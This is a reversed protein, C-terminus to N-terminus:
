RVFLPEATQVELPWVIEKRGNQWQIILPFRKVQLGTRDVAYRGIVSDPYDLDRLANRIRDRQLTGVRVVAVELIQGAAYAAAAQYSPNVGYRKRFADAFKRSGPLAADPEWTSTAFSYEAEQGLVEYYKDLAPGVTAFYAEPHWGIEKLARRMAVSEEFHGAVLLLKAGAEKAKRAMGTLDETGKSFGEFLVINLELVPAYKHAGNAVGTSFEDDAHVFAVKDLGNEVAIELMGVSYRSAPTEMAFVNQYGQQWIKDASAGAALMPYGFKEVIPAVAATIESSYPGFVMDVREDSILARYAERARESDSHDDVIKVEVKRGLLGGRENAEAEWLRYAREQMKALEAYRGTLALSVGIRLDEAALTSTALLFGGLAVLLWGSLTRTV